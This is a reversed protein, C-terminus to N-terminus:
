ISINTHLIFALITADGLVGKGRKLSTTPFMGLIRPSSEVLAEERQTPAMCRPTKRWQLLM